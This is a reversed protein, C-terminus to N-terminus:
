VFYVSQLATRYSYEYLLENQYNRRQHSAKIDDCGYEYTSADVRREWLPNHICELPLDDDFEDATDLTAPETITRELSIGPLAVPKLQEVSVIKPDQGEVRQPGRRLRQGEPEEKLAQSHGRRSLYIASPAFLLATLLSM